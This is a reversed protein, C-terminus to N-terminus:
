PRRTTPPWWWRPARCSAAAPPCRGRARSGRWCGSCSRIAWTRTPSCGSRSGSSSPSCARNHALCGRYLEVTQEAVADWSYPGAAARAAAASLERPAAPDALLEACRGGASQAGAARAARRRPARGGGRLRRRGVAGAAQRVRAHHLARGVPRHRSVPARRSRRPASVRAARPGPHLGVRFARARRGARAAAGHRHAAHRGGVARRGGGAPLRAAPHRRGQVRRILGFFLVVPGEM